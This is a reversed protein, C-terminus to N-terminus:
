ASTIKLKENSIQFKSSSFFHLWENSTYSKERYGGSGLSGRVQDDLPDWGKRRRQDFLDIRIELGSRRHELTPIRRARLHPDRRARDSAARWLDCAAAPRPRRTTASCNRERRCAAIPAYRCRRSDSRATDTRCGM